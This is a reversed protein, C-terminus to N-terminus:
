AGPLVFRVRKREFDISVKDFARMANIGLLIAPRGEYGLENFIRASAFAVTVDTLAVGGLDLRQVRAIDVTKVQGTVSEMIANQDNARLATLDLRARSARQLQRMLPLNGVSVQAGTDIIVSVPIGDVRARTLILRGKRTRARVVITDGELQGREEVQGPAIRMERSKFDFVIRQARLADIGLIGEAGINEAEFTPADIVSMMRNGVGLQAINVTAVTESGLVSHVRTPAGIPLKLEAALQRSIATRESGTDVLFAYPGQGGVKVQVTMRLTADSSLALSQAPLAEDDPRARESKSVYNQPTPQQAALPRSAAVILLVAILSPRLM